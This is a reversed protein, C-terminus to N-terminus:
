ALGSFYWLNCWVITYNGDDQCRTDEVLCSATVRALLVGGGEGRGRGVHGAGVIADALHTERKRRRASGGFFDVIKRMTARQWYQVTVAVEQQPLLARKLPSMRYTM